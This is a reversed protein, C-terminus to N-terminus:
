QTGANSDGEKKLAAPAVVANRRDIRSFTQKVLNEASCGEKDEPLPGKDTNAHPMENSATGNFFYRM